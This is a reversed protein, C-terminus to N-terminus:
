KGLLEREYFSTITTMMKEDPSFGHGKGRVVILESAVGKAKLLRSLKESQALPVTQDADGHIFLFAPARRSVHNVPSAEIAQNRTADFPAGFLRVLLNRPNSRFIEGLELLDTVPYLTAVAKIRTKKELLGVLAALHGGASDGGLGMGDQRYGYRDANSRLWRIAALCDERQAPWHASWTLRYQVTAVAFGQSTLDRLFFRIRKDGYRWGGGHFWVILPPQKVGTPVYLDLRLQKGRPASYALNAYSKEPTAARAEMLLAFLAIPLWALARTM